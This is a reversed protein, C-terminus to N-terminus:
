GARLTLHRASRNERRRVQKLVDIRQLVRRLAGRGDKAEARRSNEVAHLRTEELKAETELARILQDLYVSM